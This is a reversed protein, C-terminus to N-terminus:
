EDYLALRTLCAQLHAEGHSAPLSFGHPLWLGYAHHNQEAELVWRTVISLRSELDHAPAHRVDLWCQQRSQSQSFQKSSLGQGRAVSKWHIRQPSDGLRYDRLYDFEESGAQNSSDGSGEGLAAPLPPAHDSPAPYVLARQDLEIWTWAHFLSLPFETAVAFRPAELWGRQSAPLSLVGEVQAQAPVDLQSEPPLHPWGLGLTYRGHPSPNDLIVRFSASQGVFVAEAPKGVKVVVNVLNGHTYHMALLGLGILLFCLAYAMSNSYNMAGLLMVLVMLAYGYGFRTPVIYVRRRDISVPVSQRKVRAAVWQDIRQRLAQLM